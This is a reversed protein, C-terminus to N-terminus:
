KCFVPFMTSQYLFSELIGGAQAARYKAARGRKQAAGFASIGGGILQFTDTHNKKKYNLRSIQSNNYVFHQSLTDAAPYGAV